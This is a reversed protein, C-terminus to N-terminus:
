AAARGIHRMPHWLFPLTLCCGVFAAWFVAVIGWQQGVWGGLLTGISMGGLSALLYVSTVRGLLEDPVARQRVTTSTTGWITAHVGFAFLIAGAVWPSRTLALAAHSLTELVLGARLLATYSFRVELRGYVASGLVGGVASSAMLLGFGLGDLGLREQAYLVYVGYSAGFTINFLLIMLALTRMPPHHLLWRVGEATQAWVTVPASPTEGHEAPRRRSLSSSRLRLLLVVGLACLVANAGFAVWGAVTFLAAGLPPGALQNTIMVSGFIRSNARGLQARPVLQVVLTSAANDAFTEATGLLFFVLYILPLTVEDFALLLALLGVVVVRLADAVMVLRLRDVRDVVAGALIGFLLWPVRQAFIAFSVALPDRTLSAVLLPGAALLLGDGLNTVTMSGFLWRFPVGLERPLVRRLM